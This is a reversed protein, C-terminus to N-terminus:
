SIANLQSWAYEYKFTRIGNPKVIQIAIGLVGMRVYEVTVSFSQAVKDEILWQLAESVYGKARNLTLQTQKERELLWLRSGIKDNKVEAFTDGWWGRRDTGEIQDDRNARRDTFLSIIIATELDRDSLLDAGNLAIDTYFADQSQTIKLAIDM